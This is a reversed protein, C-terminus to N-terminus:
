VLSRYMIDMERERERESGRKIEREREKAYIGPDSLLIDFSDLTALKPSREILCWPM